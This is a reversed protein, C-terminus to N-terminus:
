AVTETAINTIFKSHHQSSFSRVFCFKSVLNDAYVSEHYVLVLNLVINNAFRFNWQHTARKENWLELRSANYGSSLAHVILCKAVQLDSPREFNKEYYESQISLCSRYFIVM